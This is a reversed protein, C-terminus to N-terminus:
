LNPAQTAIAKAVQLLAQDLARIMAPYGDGIQPVLVNFNYTKLTKGSSDQWVVYGSAEVQGNFRGYFTNLVVNLSQNAKEQGSLVFQAQNQAANLHNALSESIGERPPQAWLNHRSFYLNVDNTQYAISSSTLFSPLTLNLQIKKNSTKNIVQLGSNPLLYYHTEPVSGCATLLLLAVTLGLTRMM